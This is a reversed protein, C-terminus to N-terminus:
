QVGFRASVQRGHDPDARDIMVGYRQLDALRREAAEIAPDVTLRRLEAAAMAAAEPEPGDQVRRALEVAALDALLIRDTDDAANEVADLIGRADLTALRQSEIRAVTPLGLVDRRRAAVAARAKSLDATAATMADALDERAAAQLAEVSGRFRNDAEKAATRKGEESLWANGGIKDLDAAHTAELQSHQAEFTTINM